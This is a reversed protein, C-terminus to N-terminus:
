KKKKKGQMALQAKQQEQFKKLAQHKEEEAKNKAAIRDLRDQEKKAKEDREKQEELALECQPCARCSAECFGKGPIPKNAAVKEAQEAAKKKAEEAEKAEREKKEEAERKVREIDAKIDEESQHMKTADGRAMAVLDTLRQEAAMKVEEKSSVLDKTLRDLENNLDEFKAKLHESAMGKLLAALASAGYSRMEPNSDRVCAELEPVLDPAYRVLAKGDTVLGCMNGVVLSAKRKYEMRREKLGRTLVPVMLSLCPGDVANIFTVDMLQEICPTTKDGPNIIAEILPQVMAQMEPSKILQVGLTSLSKQSATQVEPKTDTLAEIVSPVIDQMLNSVQQPVRGVLNSLMNLVAVKTQWNSGRDVLEQLMAPTIIGLGQACMCTICSQFAADAQARVETVKDGCKALITPLIKPCYPEFVSKLVMALCAYCAMALERLKQDKKNGAMTELKALVGFTKLSRSKLGKVVGALGFGQARSGNESVVLFRDLYAQGEGAGIVSMCAALGDAVACQVLDDPVRAAGRYPRLDEEGGGRRGGQDAVRDARDADKEGDGDTDLYHELAPLVAAPEAHLAAATGAGRVAADEDGLARVVFPAFGASSSLSGAESLPKGKLAGAADGLVAAPFAADFTTSIDVGQGGLAPQHSVVGVM